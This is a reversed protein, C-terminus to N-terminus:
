KIGLLAVLATIMQKTNHATATDSENGAVIENAWEDVLALATPTDLDNALTTALREAYDASNTAHSIASRWLQLRNEAAELGENTWEWEQRYHHALIALRIAMPDVGSATLKSVFVLNGLSKSM